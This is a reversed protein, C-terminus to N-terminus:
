TEPTAYGKARLLEQLRLRLQQGRKYGVIFAEQRISPMAETMKRGAPSEYFKILEKVEAASFKRAYIPVYTELFMESSFEAYFEKRLDEWVPAPVNPTALKFQEFAPEVSKLEEEIVKMLELLRKIDARLERSIANPADSRPANQARAGGGCVLSLCFMLGILKRAFM